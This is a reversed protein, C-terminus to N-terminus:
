KDGQNSAPNNSARPNQGVVLVRVASDYYGKGIFGPQPWRESFPVYVSEFPVFNSGKHVQLGRWYDVSGIDGWLDIVDEHM